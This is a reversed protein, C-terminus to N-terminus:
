RTIDEWILKATENERYTLPYVVINYKDLLDDSIDITKLVLEVRKAPRMTSFIESVIVIGLSRDCSDESIKLSSYDLKYLRKQIARVIARKSM